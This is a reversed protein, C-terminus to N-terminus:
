ALVNLTYTGVNSILNSLGTFTFGLGANIVMSDDYNAPSNTVTNTYTM